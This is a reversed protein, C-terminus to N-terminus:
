GVGTAIGGVGKAVRRGAGALAEVATAAWGAVIAVAKAEALRGGAAGGVQVARRPAEAVDVGVDAQRHHNAGAGRIGVAVVNLGVGDGAKGFDTLAALANGATVGIRVARNLRNRGVD